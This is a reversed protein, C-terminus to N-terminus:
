DLVFVTIKAAARGLYSSDQIRYSDFYATCPYEGSPLAVDLATNDIYQEPDLYGSRYIEEGTDDRLITVTFRTGNDPPNEIMLNIEGGDKMSPTANISFTILGERVIEDLEAQRGAPDHLTGSKVNGEAVLGNTRNEQSKVQNVVTIGYYGAGCLVILCFLAAALIVTLNARNRRGKRRGTETTEKGRRM